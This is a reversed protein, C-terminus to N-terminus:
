RSTRASPWSGSCRASRSGAATVRGTLGLLGGSRDTVREAEPTPRGRRRAAAPLGTAGRRPRGARRDRRGPRADLVVVDDAVAALRLRHSVVLVTRRAPWADRGRRPHGDRQRRRSPLHGRRPHGAPRRRPVGPRDRHRQRQGGSLRVGGEGVPTDFGRPCPRSSRRRRRGRPRRGPGRRRDRRPPGPPHQRRRTGHFLHPRQPVWAVQARWAGLDIADLPPRRRPDRGADPEIFRLLLNAIRRRAPGPRASSRSWAARGPHRPRAGDLAPEIAVRTPSACTRSRPDDAPPRRRCRGPVGAGDGRRSRAATGAPSRSTSSRSREREAVARGAAGAHYRTALQRLPLFFEPVIILVALARDFAISGDMLRLSVEVAVLAVAVAGGWELVLSTQFATRLVEMTTDGYQRSITASTTSRSAAGASCRSRPSAAAAHRPLVRGALAGRRVAARHHGADPRRHVGLLLVLVPGTFSCSSRRRRTSSSSSPWRRAAPRRGRAGPGAPVVHRLRRRADLGDLLVGALEGSRERSTWAPGLALLHATLDARLRARSGARPAGPRARRRGAAASGPRVALVRSPSSRRRRGDGLAAGGLFVDAVVVSTLCAQRSSSRRGRAFGCAIAPRSCPAARRARPSCARRPRPRATARRTM